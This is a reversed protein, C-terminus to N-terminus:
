QNFELTPQVTLGLEEVPAEQEAINKYLLMRQELNYNEGELDSLRLELAEITQHQQEETIVETVLESIATVIDEDTVDSDDIPGLTNDEETILVEGTEQDHFENTITHFKLKDAVEATTKVFLIRSWPLGALEFAIQVRNM